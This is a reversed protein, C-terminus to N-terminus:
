VIEIQVFGDSSPLAPTECRRPRALADDFRALTIGWAAAESSMVGFDAIWKRDDTTHRNFRTSERSQTHAMCISNPDASDIKSPVTNREALFIKFWVIRMEGRLQLHIQSKFRYRRRSHQASM